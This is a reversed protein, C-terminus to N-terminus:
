RKKIVTDGHSKLHELLHECQEANQCEVIVTLGTTKGDKYATRCNTIFDCSDCGIHCNDFAGRFVTEVQVTMSVEKMCSGRLPYMTIIQRKKKQGYGQWNPISLTEANQHTM